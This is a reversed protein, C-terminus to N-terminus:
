DSARRTRGSPTFGAALAERRATTAQAQLAPDIDMGHTGSESGRRTLGTPAPQTDADSARRTRGSPTFGAALAERRATTAQAQLAPDVEMGLTGSESSRRTRGAPGRRAGPASGPRAADTGPTRELTRGRARQVTAAAAQNGARSQLGLLAQEASTRSGSSSGARGEERRERASTLAAVSPRESTRHVPASM